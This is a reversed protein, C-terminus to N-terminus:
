QKIDYLQKDDGYIGWKEIAAKLETNEPKAAAEKLPIGQLLADLAQRISHAGATGGQPHGYIAGGCAVIWDYGLLESLKPILGQYVGGGPMPFSPKLHHFPARLNIAIKMFKDHLFNFKGYGCPFVVMDAGAMRALKGLLIHSSIGSDPSEYMTGAFDLHALIPVNIDPEEALMQMGAIGVTLYNVMLANAGNGVAEKALKLMKDPRDTVNLTYLTHEGTREFVKKEKTMFLKLRDLAKSYEVDAILEDDKVIDVGGMAAEEFLEAAQAPKLGSCPKIMVNVLPRQSVNLIQRVGKIGFKPGQFKSTFSKPFELDVLKLKGIMSINGIVSSLLLPIQGGLNLVPFALRFVYSREAIGEPIAYEYDPVETVSLLKGVHSKRLEDTEAPVKTWTGTTQEVAISAAKVLLDKERSQGLYTAIVYDESNISEPIAYVDNYDM